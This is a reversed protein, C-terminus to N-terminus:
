VSGIASRGGILVLPRFLPQLDVSGKEVFEANGFLKTLLNETVIEESEKAFDLALYISKNGKGVRLGDPRGLKLLLYRIKQYIKTMKSRETM